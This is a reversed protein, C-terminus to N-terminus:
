PCRLGCGRGPLAAAGSPIRHFIRGHYLRHVALTTGESLEAKLWIQSAGDKLLVPVDPQIEKWDTGDTSYAFSGDEGRLAAQLLLAYIPKSGTIGERLITGSAYGVDERLLTISGTEGTGMLTVQNEKRLAGTVTGAEGEPIRRADLLSNEAKEGQGDVYWYLEAGGSTGATEM